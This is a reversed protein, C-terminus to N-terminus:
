KIPVGEVRKHYLVGSPVYVQVNNGINLDGTVGMVVLKLTAPESKDLFLVKCWAGGLEQPTTGWTVFVYNTSTLLEALNGTNDLTFTGGGLSPSFDDSPVQVDDSPLRNYCALIDVDVTSKLDNFPVASRNGTFGDIPQPLYTFFWTYRGSSQIKGDHFYPRDNGNIKFEIDDQGRMLESWKEQPEFLTGICFIHQPPDLMARPEIWLFKTCNLLWDPSSAFVLINNSELRPTPIGWEMPKAMKRIHIEEAANALMNSAYEAHNARSVQFAGFPIVALVGLLGIALVFIAALVELLSIGRSQKKIRM